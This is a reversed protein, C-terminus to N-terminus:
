LARRSLPRLIGSSMLTQPQLSVTPLQPCGGRVVIRSNGSCSPLCRARTIRLRISDGPRSGWRTTTGVSSM